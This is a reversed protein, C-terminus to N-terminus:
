YIRYERKIERIKKKQAETRASSELQCLQAFYRQKKVPDGTFRYLECTELYKQPLVEGTQFFLEWWWRTWIASAWAYDFLSLPADGAALVKRYLRRSPSFAFFSQAASIGIYRWSLFGQTARLFTQFGLGIAGSITNHIIFFSKIAPLLHFVAKSAILGSQSLRIAAPSLIGTLFIESVLLNWNVRYNGEPKGALDILLRLGLWYVLQRGLKLSCPIFPLRGEERNMYTGYSVFLTAAGALLMGIQIWPRLTDREERILTPDQEVSYRHLYTASKMQNFDGSKLFLRVKDIGSIFKDPSSFFDLASGGGALAVFGLSGVTGRVSGFGLPRLIDRLDGM